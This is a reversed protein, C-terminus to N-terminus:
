TIGDEDGAAAGTDAATQGFRQMLETVLDNSVPVGTSTM